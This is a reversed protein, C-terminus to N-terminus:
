PFSEPGFLRRANRMAGPSPSWNSASSGLKGVIPIHRGDAIKGIASILYYTERTDGGRGQGWPVVTDVIENETENEANEDISKM